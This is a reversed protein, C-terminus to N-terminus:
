FANTFVFKRDNVIENSMDFRLVIKKFFMKTLKAVDIKKIISIYKIMKIYQDIIMLISNYVVDRKKNLSLKMVFNM